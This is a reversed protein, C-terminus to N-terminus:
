DFNYDVTHGLLYRYVLWVILSVISLVIGYFGNIITEHVGKLSRIVIYVIALIASSMIALGVTMVYFFSSVEQNSEMSTPKNTVLIVAV